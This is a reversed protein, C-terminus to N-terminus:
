AGGGTRDVWWALAADASSQFCHLDDGFRREFLDSLYSLIPETGRKVNHAGIEPMRRAISGTLQLLRMGKESLVSALLIRGIKVLTEELDDTEAEHLSKFASALQEIEQQLAAKFLSDKDGYRSYITRKAIGAEATIADLSTGEYGLEVFLEFAKELLSENSISPRRARRPRREPQQDKAKPM